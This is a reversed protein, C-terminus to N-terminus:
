YLAQHDAMEGPGIESYGWSNNSVRVGQDMAYQLAEVADSLLGFGQDDLVKLAMVRGGWMVGTVGNSNNAVAAVTGAVHTGHGHGDLPDNDDNVFDWGRVDDVYGNGDDDVGPIGNAEALNQWVNPALDSHRYDIGTDIVAVLAASGTANAWAEPWDIDADPAGPSWIGWLSGQGTNHLSWQEAFFADNPLQQDIYIVHNRHAYAVYPLRRLIAIAEDVDLGARLRVHELGAIARYARLRTGSVRARALARRNGLAAPKFRVLISTPDYSRAPRGTPAPVVIGSPVAVTSRAGFSADAAGNASGADGGAATLPLLLLCIWAASALSMVRAMFREGNNTM